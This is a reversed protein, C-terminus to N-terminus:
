NKKCFHAVNLEKETGLAHLKRAPFEIL